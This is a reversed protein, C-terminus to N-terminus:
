RPGDPYAVYAFADADPSWSNVNLTGQGGVLRDFTHRNSWDNDTVLRVEVDRNAPHGITGAPYSVYSVMRGDPSPHPFWNVRDDHTLQTLESGDTRMRAIQAHGPCDSFAETNFYLWAGDPSYDPGDAPAAGFTLQRIPGGAAPITFINASAPQGADSPELGVFALETADPSIGHLFHYMPRAPDSVTIPIAPGAPLEVRHIQWDFASAYVVRCESSLVHDNNM